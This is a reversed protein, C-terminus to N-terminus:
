TYISCSSKWGSGCELLVNRDFFISRNYCSRARLARLSERAYQSFNLHVPLILLLIPIGLVTRNDKVVEISNEM